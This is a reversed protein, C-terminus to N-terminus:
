FTCFKEQFSFNNTAFFIKSGKKKNDWFAGSGVVLTKNFVTIAFKPLYRFCSEFSLSKSISKGLFHVKVVKSTTNLAKCTKEICLCGDPATRFYLKKSFM